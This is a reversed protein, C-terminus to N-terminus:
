PGRVVFFNYRPVFLIAIYGGWAFSEALGLLFDPWTLLDFGPLLTSLVSHAIPLDPFILYGLVCLVFSIALFLSLALGFAVLPMRRQEAPGPSASQTGM